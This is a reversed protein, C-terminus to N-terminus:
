VIYTLDMPVQRFQYVGAADSVTSALPQMTARDLLVVPCSVPTTGTKVTGLIKGLILKDKSPVVIKGLLQAPALRKAANAPARRIGASRGGRVLAAATLTAPDLLTRPTATSTFGPDTLGEAIPAAGQIIRVNNYLLPSNYASTNGCLGLMANSLGGVGNSFVRSQLAGGLYLYYFSDHYELAVTSFTTYGAIAMYIVTTGNIAVSLRNAVNDGRWNFTINGTSFIPYQGASSSGLSGIQVDFQIAFSRYAYLNLIGTLDLNMTVGTTGIQLSGSSIRPYTANGGYKTWARSGGGKLDFFNATWTTASIVVDSITTM